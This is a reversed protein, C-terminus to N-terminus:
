RNGLYQELLEPSFGSMRRNGVMILPVGSGGLQLFRKRAAEDKEIDYVVHPINRAKVYAVARKCYGCWETIYLEVTGSFRRSDLSPAPVTAQAVAFGNGATPGTGSNGGGNGNAWGRPVALLLAMSTYAKKPNRSTDFNLLAM